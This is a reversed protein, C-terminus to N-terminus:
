SQEKLAPILGLELPVVQAVGELFSGLVPAERLVPARELQRSALLRPSLGRAAVALSKFSGAGDLNPESVLKQNITTIKCTDINNKSCTHRDHQVLLCYVIYRSCIITVYNINATNSFSNAKTQM